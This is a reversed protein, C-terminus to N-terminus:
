RSMRNANADVLERPDSNVEIKAEGEAESDIPPIPDSPGSKLAGSDPYYSPTKRPQTSICIAHQYSLFGGNALILGNQGAGQRLRRVM